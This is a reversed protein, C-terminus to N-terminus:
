CALNEKIIETDILKLAELLVEELAEDPKKMIISWYKFVKIENDEYLTCIVANMERWDLYACIKYEERLWKQLLSQTPATYVHVSDTWFSNSFALTSNQVLEGNIQYYFKVAVDFGKEKALKATRYTILQEEM